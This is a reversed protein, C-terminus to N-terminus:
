KVSNINGGIDDGQVPNGNGSDNQQTGGVKIPGISWFWRRTADGNMLITQGWADVPGNTVASIVGNTRTVTIAQARELTGLTKQGSASPILLSVFNAATTQNSLPPLQGREAQYDAVANELTIITNKTNSIAQSKMVMTVATVGIAILLAIIGVVVLIEVLTFAAAARPHKCPTHTM